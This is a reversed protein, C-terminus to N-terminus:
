GVGLFISFFKLSSGRIKRHHHNQLSGQRCTHSQECEL